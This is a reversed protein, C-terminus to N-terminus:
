SITTSHRLQQSFTDGEQINPSSVVELRRIMHTDAVQVVLEYSGPSVLSSNKTSDWLAFDKWNLEFEITESQRIDLLSTQQFDILKQRIKRRKNKDVPIFDSSVDENISNFPRWFLLITQSSGTTHPGLNQVSLQLRTPASKYLKLTPLTNGRGDEVNGGSDDVWDIKWKSYSLGHGFAFEPTGQYYMHTRGVGVRLGMETLPLEHVFSSPYMTAALKGTPNYYGFLVRAIADSAVEGGYGASLIAGVKSRIDGLSVSGGHILVIITKEGAADLVSEMLKPQLGPLTTEYRDLEEKEQSQDLGLLLIVVDSEQALKKAREIDASSGDKGAIDCGMLSKVQDPSKMRKIAQLPTEICSFDDDISGDSRCKCPSGHYNGFLGKTANFHPGIVALSRKENVDLPLLNNKNQLLVISQLAAELALRRHQPSGISAIDEQPNDKKPSDFLGLRFQIRAMREFSENITAGTVQGENYAKLLGVGFTYGCDVDVSANKSIAQVFRTTKTTLL